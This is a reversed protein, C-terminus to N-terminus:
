IEDNKNKLSKKIKMQNNQNNLRPRREIVTSNNFSDENVVKENIITLNSNGEFINVTINGKIEMNAKPYSFRFFNEENNKSNKLLNELFKSLTKDEKNNLTALVKIKKPDFNKIEKIKKDNKNNNNKLNRNSIKSENKKKENLNIKENKQKCSDTKINHYFGEQCECDNKNKESNEKCEL